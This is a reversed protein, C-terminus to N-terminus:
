TGYEAAFAVAAGLLGPQPHTLLKVPIAAMHDRHRGKVIFGEAFGSAPLVNALRLGLGGAIVVGDAGHALALDGAVSGLNICLRNLAAVANRDTGALARRWLAHDTTAQEEPFMAKFIAGLGPGSVVREISVRGYQTRLSSLLRDDEADIPAFGIHGGETAIVRDGHPGRDIMAVGLGTGPGVISILGTTPLPDGPGPGCLHKLHDGCHAVANAVAAFDNVITLHDLGLADHLDARRLVWDGNTMLILGDGIPAAIAVAAFRPLKRNVAQAFAQWAEPLGCYDSTSFVIEPTLEVGGAGIEAIAFRAHTGGVDVAVIEM